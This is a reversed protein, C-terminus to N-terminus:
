RVGCAHYPPAEITVVFQATAGNVRWGTGPDDRLYGRLEDRSLATANRAAMMRQVAADDPFDRLCAEDYVALMEVLQTAPDGLNTPVEYQAIAEAPQIIILGFIIIIMRM